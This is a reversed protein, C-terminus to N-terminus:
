REGQNPRRSEGPMEVITTMERIRDGIDSGYGIIEGNDSRWKSLTSIKFNSTFFTRAGKNYRIAILEKIPYIKNGFANMEYKERGLEDIFLPRSAYREFGKSAIKDCLEPAPIMEVTMGSVFHLIECFSHMLITKGCGVKGAMYIGKNINWKCEKSGIIYLYMQLIIERNGDDVVFPHFCGREAMFRNAYAQLLKWFNYKSLAANHWLVLENSAEWYKHNQKEIVEQVMRDMKETLDQNTTAM